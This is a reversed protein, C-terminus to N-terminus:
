AAPQTAATEVPSSSPHSSPQATPRGTGGGPVAWIKIRGGAVSAVHTSDPSFSVILITSMGHPLIIPKAEPARASFLFVQGDPGTGAAAWTGDTSVALCSARRGQGAKGTETLYTRHLIEGTQTGVAYVCEGGADAEYLAEGDASFAVYGISVAEPPRGAWLLRHAVCDVIAGGNKWGGFAVYRGDNSVCMRRVGDIADGSLEAVWHLEKSSPDFLGVRQQRNKWDRHDTDQELIVCAFRGNASGGARQYGWGRPPSWTGMVGKEGVSAFILPWNGHHDGIDASALYMGGPLPVVRISPPLQGAIDKKLTVQDWSWIELRDDTSMGFLGDGTQGWESFGTIGAWEIEQVPAPLPVQSNEVKRCATASVLTSGSLLTFVFLWPLRKGRRTSAPWHLISWRCSRGGRSRLRHAQDTRQLPVQRIYLPVPVCKRGERDGGGGGPISRRVGRARRKV